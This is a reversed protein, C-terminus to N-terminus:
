SDAGVRRRRGTSVCTSHGGREGQAAGRAAETTSLQAETESKAVVLAEHAGQLAALEATLKEVTTTLHAREGELREVELKLGAHTQAAAAAAAAAAAVADAHTVALAATEADAAAKHQTMCALDTTLEEGAAQLTAVQVRLDAELAQLVAVDEELALAREAEAHHAVEEASLMAVTAELRASLEAAAEQLAALDHRLGAHTAELDTKADLHQAQVAALHAAAAAVAAAHHQQEAEVDGELGTIAEQLTLRAAEADATHERDRTEADDLEDALRRGEAMSRVHAAALTDYEHGKDDLLGQYRALEERL